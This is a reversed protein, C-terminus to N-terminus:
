KSAKENNSKSTVYLGRRSLINEITKFFIKIDLILSIHEVYYVDNKLREEWHISNRYYAQNYGTIGPLVDLKRKMEGKYHNRHEPLDPRPGIISMENKLVNYIQPLEDISTKRLFSGIKTLRVDDEANYTSGDENRLDPANVIMTRFKYMNFLKGNKGVRPAIYFIPGKDELYIIPAIIILLFLFIPLTVSAIILDMVRKFVCVHVRNM